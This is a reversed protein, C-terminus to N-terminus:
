HQTVSRSWDHCTPVGLVSALADNLLRSLSIAENRLLTALSHFRYVNGGTGHEIGQVDLLVRAERAIIQIMWFQGALTAPTTFKQPRSM